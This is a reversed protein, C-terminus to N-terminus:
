NKLKKILLSLLLTYYNQLLKIKLIKKNKLSVMDIKKKNKKIKFFSCLLRIKFSRKNEIKNKTIALIIKLILIHIM